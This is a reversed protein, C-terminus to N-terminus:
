EAMEDMGSKRRRRMAGYMLVSGLSLVAGLATYAQTGMGGTVPLSQGATNGVTIAVPPANPDTVTDVHLKSNSLQGWETVPTTPDWTLLTVDTGQVHIYFKGGDIVVYGDPIKTESVEYYGDEVDSVTTRGNSETELTVEADDTLYSGKGAPDLKKLTFQAGSLPTTMDEADVKVITM